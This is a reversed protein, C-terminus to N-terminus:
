NNIADSEPNSSANKQFKNPILQKFLAMDYADLFKFVWLFFGYILAGLLITFIVNLKDMTFYIVTGMIISALVPKILKLLYSFVNLKLYYLDTITFAIRIIFETAVTGIVAGMFGYANILFYNIIILFIFSFIQIINEQKQKDIATLSQGSVNGAFRAILFLAFYKLALAAPAYGPKSYILHIIPDALLFTGIVIPISLANLYRFILLHIRKYKNIDLTSYKFMLPLAIQFIMQPLILILIILKAAASYLGAETNGKFYQLMLISIQFYAILFIDYISYKLGDKVMPWLLKLNFTPKVLKLDYLFVSLIFLLNMILPAGAILIIGFNRDNIIYSIALTLIFICFGTIVEFISVVKMKLMIRLVARFSKRFEFFVTALGLLVVLIMTQSDYHLVVAMVITIIFFFTSAISQIIISNGFYLSISDKHRSGERMLLTTSGIDNAVLFTNTLALATSYMGFKEVGAYRAIIIAVLANFIRYLVRAILVAFANNFLKRFMM